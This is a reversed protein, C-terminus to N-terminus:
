EERPLTTYPNDLKVTMLYTVEDATMPVSVEFGNARSLTVVKFAEGAMATENTINHPCNTVMIADQNSELTLVFTYSADRTGSVEVQTNGSVTATCDGIVDPGGSVTLSGMGEVTATNEDSATAYIFVVGKTNISLAGDQIDLDSNISLFSNCNGLMEEFKEKLRKYVDNKVCGIIEMDALLQTLTHTYDMNCPDDPVGLDLIEQVGKQMVTKCLKEMEEEFTPEGEPPDEYYKLALKLDMLKMYGVAKGWTEDRIHKQLQGTGAPQHLETSSKTATEQILELSSILLDFQTIVQELSMKGEAFEGASLTSAKLTRRDVSYEHEGLPTLFSESHMQFLATHEFESIAESYEISIELPRYLNLDLPSIEFTRLQREDIPLAKHTGLLTLSVTCTDMVAGPPFTLKVINGIEDIVQLLGGEITIEATTSIDDVDQSFDFSVFSSAVPVIRIESSYNGLYATLSLTDGENYQMEVEEGIEGSSKFSTSTKAVKEGSAIFKIEPNGHSRSSSLLVKSFVSSLTKIQILYAGVPLAGVEVITKGAAQFQSRQILIKGGMDMLSLDVRGQRDNPFVLTASQSFPNPYVELRDNPSSQTRISTLSALLHLTDSGRLTLQHGQEINLVVVSDPSMDEEGSVTFNIQYNQASIGISILAFVSFFSVKKMVTLIQVISSILNRFVQCKLVKKVYKNLM